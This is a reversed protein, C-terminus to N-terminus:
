PTFWKMAQVEEVSVRALWAERDQVGYSMVIEDGDQVMGACFEIGHHHFIWCQSVSVVSFLRDMKVFRHLYVRSENAEITEHTVLLYGGEFPIAAGGRLHELALTCESEIDPTIVTPDISYIWALGGDREIPMWNKEHWKRSAQVPANDIDGDNTFYIRAIQRRDPDRDCVTASGALKGDIAVLRIDEYGVIWSPKRVSQDLDEILRPAELTGDSTLTGLYNQTRVIHDPDNIAYRRGELTYNVARIVCHIKDRMMCITPNMAHWGNPPEFGIRMASTSPCISELKGPRLMSRAEHRNHDPTSRSISLRDLAHPDEAGVRMLKAKHFDEEAQKREASGEPLMHRLVDFPLEYLAPLYRFWARETACGKYRGVTVAIHAWAIAENQRRLRSASVAAIWACEAYMPSAGLGHGAAVIAQEYHRLLFLMEAQKYAAWAAEDGFKRLAVCRGFAEAARAHQGLGEFSAGLYYWWRPDDPHSVLYNELLEVDRTFKAKLQEPSKSLESFTVGPLTERSGGILAEHTAGVYHCGSTSRIIKEKAYHGDSSEVLLVEAASKSLASRLDTQGLHVREDSDLVVIWDAGLRKAEDLSANRAKSFDSWSHKTIALKDGAVEQARAITNDTIGTDILLVKDVQDVISRIAEPIERERNGTITASVICPTNM